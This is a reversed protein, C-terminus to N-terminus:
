PDIGPARTAFLLQAVFMDSGQLNDSLDGTVLPLHEPKYAMEKWHMPVPLAVLIPSHESSKCKGSFDRM